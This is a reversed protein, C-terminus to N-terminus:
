QNERYFSRTIGERLFGNKEYYHQAQLNGIATDTDFRIVGMTQLSAKLSQMCKTGLGQNQVDGNVYIWRLYATEGPNVYHIECGGISKGDLIFDCTQQGGVTKDGWVLQVGADAANQIESAYYVNEHEVVFGCDKLLNEIYGYKEFLKGHRANCSMGFYHFFAYIPGVNGFHALATQLLSRGAEECDENYYLMRIVPYSVLGSIEGSADFGFNTNGYQIFGVIKEGDYATKTVIDKFLNRGEGDVDQLMSM